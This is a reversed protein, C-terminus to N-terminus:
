TAASTIAEARSCISYAWPLVIKLEGLLSSLTKSPIGVPTISALTELESSLWKVWEDHNKFAAGALLITSLVMVTEEATSIENATTVIRSSISQALKDDRHAMAVICAARFEIESKGSNWQLNTSVERLRALLDAGLDFWQSLFAVNGWIPRASGDRLDELIKITADRSLLREKTGAPILHGELPGPLAWAILSGSAELRARATELAESGPMSRGLSKHRLQMFLLRGIVEQKLALSSMEAAHYMPERRYDLIEAFYASPLKHSHVWERLRDLHFKVSMSVQVLMGAQMWACMRKWFPARSPGGEMINLRNLVMQAFLSILEYCDTEDDRLFQQESLKKVAKDAFDRYRDDHQRSLAIDLAGILSFPNHWPNCAELAIWLEDDGFNETWVGPSLDDRLSGLLCISLGQMLNRSLLEKRYAPLVRGIYEEPNLSKPDPGCFLDFYDFSDPVLDILAVQDSQLAVAGRRQLPNVGNAVEEFIARAEEDTLDRNEITDRLSYVEQATPGLRDILRQMVARREEPRPSLILLEEFLFEAPKSDRQMWRLTVGLPQPLLVIELGKLDVIREETQSLLVRRATAILDRLDISVTGGISIVTGASLGFRILFEKDSLLRERVPRPERNCMFEAILEAKTM